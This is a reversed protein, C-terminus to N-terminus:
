CLCLSAGSVGALRSFWWLNGYFCMPVYSFPLPQLTILEQLYRLATHLRFDVPLRTLQLLSQPHRPSLTTFPSLVAAESPSFRQMPSLNVKLGFGVNCPAVIKTKNIKTLLVKKTLVFFALSNRDYTHLFFQKWLCNSAWLNSRCGSITFKWTGCFCGSFHAIITLTM